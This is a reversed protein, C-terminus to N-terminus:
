LFSNLFSILIGMFLTWIMCVMLGLFGKWTSDSGVASWSWKYPFFMIKFPLLVIRILRQELSNYHRIKEKQIAEKRLLERAEYEKRKISEEALEEAKKEFNLFKKRQEEKLKQAKADVEEQIKRQKEDKIRQLEEPPVYYVKDSEIRSGAIERIKDIAEPVPIKFFERDARVRLKSLGKHIERELSVYDQTLARYELVYEELVGTTGLEKMRENPDKSSQGIKITDPHLPNSAIYIFGIM